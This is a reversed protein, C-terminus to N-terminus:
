RGICTAPEASPDSTSAAVPTCFKIGFLSVQQPSGSANDFVSLTGGGNIRSWTVSIACSHGPALSTGCNNGEHFPGTITIATINLTASGLNSLTATRETLCQCGANIVNRCEFIMRTPSLRATTGIGGLPVTQPSGAANDTVSLAATRTGSATPKFTVSISCSAGVSLSSGCTHTQAFDGPNVGTIAIGSITLTTTGVNTLTVTKAPSTTGIAVTGFSLITPSLKATTGIGSLTVKQPSGAVNDSVSLAATRTGAATPKFTVSISCSAGAALSSGCTHTQTFDAANTGAISIASVTLSATGTNKLTVTKAASTTGIAQTSFTLSTPSLAANPASTVAMSISAVDQASKVFRGFGLRHRLLKRINMENPTVSAQTTAHVTIIPAQRTQAAATSPDVTTYDCGELNFHNEDCPILLFAHQNVNSDLGVGAIEGRDNITEPSTLFLTSDPPILANLDVMPGGGEWLSARAQSFDCGPVSVAAPVSIGVVQGAANISGGVSCADGGVTGLDTMTNDKWLSAHIEQDGKLNAWGVVDGHDNLAIAASNNGGITNPLDNLSGHNWLFAHQFQDGTLASLGVIQGQNNLDTAFTCTGGFSGLNIMTGNEWLFAGTTLPFGLEQTCGNYTSPASSTYSEGIIQGQENVLLAMSDTGGLTGLDQMKGNQWLFAHAETLGFLSFNDPVANTALGVVHGRSNVANAISENGDELTGLDTIKGQNWLVARFEPFGPFFPDTESNESVGAILGNASIWNSASSGGGPLAGLDSIVGNQWQFAHSRFCPDEENFCFAPFPDPTSTDAWGAVVGRNNLVPAYNNPINVYSQPGGLTGLDILKYHHHEAQLQKQAQAVLRATVALAAFLTIAIVSTKTKYEVNAEV